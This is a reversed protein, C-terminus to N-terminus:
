FAAGNRNKTEKTDSCVLVANGAVNVTEKGVKVHRTGVAYVQFVQRIEVFSEFVPEPVAIGTWHGEEFRLNNM